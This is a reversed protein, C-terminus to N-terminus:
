SNDVKRSHLILLPENGSLELFSLREARQLLEAAATVAIIRAVNKGICSHTGAGFGLHQKANERWPDFLHASKFICNNKGTAGLMIYVTSGAPIKVGGITVSSIAVRPILTGEQLRVAEDASNHLANLDDRLKSQIDQDSNAILRILTMPLDRNSKVALTEFFSLILCVLEDTNLSSAGQFGKTFQIFGLQGAQTADCIERAKEHLLHQVARGSPSSIGEQTFYHHALRFSAILENGELSNVGIFHYISQQCYPEIYRSKIDVGVGLPLSRALKKALPQLVEQQIHKLRSQSCYSAFARRLRRHREGTALFMEHSHSIDPQFESYILTGFHEDSELIQKAEEYGIVIWAGLKDDFSVAPFYYNSIDVM